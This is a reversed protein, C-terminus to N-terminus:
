PGQTRATGQGHPHAPRRRALAADPPAGAEPLIEPATPMPGADQFECGAPRASCGHRFRAGTHSDPRPGQPADKRAPRERVTRVARGAEPPATDPPATADPLVEPATPIHPRCRACPRSPAPCQLWRSRARTHIPATGKHGPLGAGRRSKGARRSWSRRSHAGQPARSGTLGRSSVGVDPVRPGASPSSCGPRSRRARTSGPPTPGHSWFFQQVAGADGQGGPDAAGRLAGQPAHSRAPRRSSADAALARPGASQASRGPRFRARAHPDPNHRAM